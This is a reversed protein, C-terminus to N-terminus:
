SNLNSFQFPKDISPGAFYGNHQNKANNKNKKGKAFYAM